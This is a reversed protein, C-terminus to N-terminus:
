RQEIWTAVVEGYGAAVEAPEHRRGDGSRTRPVAFGHDAGPVAVVESGAPLLGVHERVEDPGGFPDHTGQLVLAPVAVAPWHEVRVDDPRGPRHLPYSVLLLGAVCGPDGDALAHTAIRAGNSQGGVVWPRRPGYAARAAAVVARFGPVARHPPPPVARGAARWPQDVRLVIHRRAALAEALAVLHPTDLDGGAGHTLLVAAGRPRAPRHVVVPVADVWEDDVPLQAREVPVTVV